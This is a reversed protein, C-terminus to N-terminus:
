ETNYKAHRLVILRIWTWAFGMMSKYFEREKAIM